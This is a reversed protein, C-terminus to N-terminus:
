FRLPGLLTSSSPSRSMSAAPFRGLVVGPDVVVLLPGAGREAAVRFGRPTELAACFTM